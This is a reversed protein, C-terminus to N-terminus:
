GAPLLHPLDVPQCLSACWSYPLLLLRLWLSCTDVRGQVLFATILRWREPRQGLRPLVPIKRTSLNMFTGCPAVTGAVERDEGLVAFLFTHLLGLNSDFWLIM